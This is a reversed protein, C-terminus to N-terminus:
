RATPWDMKKAPGISTAVKTSKVSPAGKAVLRTKVPAKVPAKAGKPAAKSAPKGPSIKKAPAKKAPTKTM